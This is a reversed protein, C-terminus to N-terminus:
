QRGAGTLAVNQPSNPADDNFTVHGERKGMGLPTFTVAVTCSAGPALSGQFTQCSSFPMITFDGDASISSVLLTKKGTNSVNITQAAGPMGQKQEGFNLSSPAFSAASLNLSGTAALSVTLPNPNQDHFVSVTGAVSGAGNPTFKVEVGCTQNKALSAPPVPCNNTQSYGDGSITIKDIQGGSGGTNMLTVTQSDSTKAVPVEGFVMSYPGLVLSSRYDQPRVPFAGM